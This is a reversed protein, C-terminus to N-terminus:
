EQKNLLFEQFSDIIFDKEKETLCNKCILEDDIVWVHDNYGCRSCTPKYDAEDNIYDIFKLIHKKNHM